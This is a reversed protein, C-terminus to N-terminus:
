DDAYQLYTTFLTRLKDKIQVITADDYPKTAVKGWVPQPWAADGESRAIVHVHLQRVQNGLAAVNMKTASFLDKLKEAVYNIEWMLQQQDAESLQFLEQVEPVRPVLIFWPYNADNMLLLQSLKFDGILCTDAALQADLQFTDM